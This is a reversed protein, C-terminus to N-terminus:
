TPLRLPGIATAITTVLEQDSMTSTFQYVTWGLLTLANRRARDRDFATRRGHVDWGDLEIAVLRAPYALDLRVTSGSPLQVPHQQVPAPLGARDLAHLARLELDSDGPDYGPLRRALAERAARLDRRGPGALRAACCRLDSLRLGRHRMAEDIWSGVVGVDQGASADLITRSLATVPIPGLLTRDMAPLLVSRHVTARALRVRRRSAVTLEIGGSRPVVGWLRAATRHSASADPGAALCAGLVQQDWSRAPAGVVYVGPRLMRWRGRRVRSGIAADTWGRALLQQRTVLGLQTEALEVITGEDVQM